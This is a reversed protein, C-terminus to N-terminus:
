FAASHCRQLSKRLCGAAMGSREALNKDKMEGLDYSVKKEGRKEGSRGGGAKRGDEEEEDSSSCSNDASSGSTFDALYDPRQRRPTQSCEPMATLPQCPCVCVCVYASTYDDFLMHIWVSCLNLSISLTLHDSVCPIVMYVSSASM